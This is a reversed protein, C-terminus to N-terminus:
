PMFISQAVSDLAATEAGRLPHHAIRHSHPHEDPVAVEKKLSASPEVRRHSACPPVVREAKTTWSAM